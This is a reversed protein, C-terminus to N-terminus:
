ARISCSRPRTAARATALSGGSGGAASTASFTPASSRRFLAVRYVYGGTVSVGLSRGYEHVPDILGSVMSCAPAPSSYAHAGERCNWGYDGGLEIRDIEEFEGQGVDGLWLEGTARDFSFRWPNRL